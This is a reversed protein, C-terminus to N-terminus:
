ENLTVECGDFVTKYYENMGYGRCENSVMMKIDNATVSYGKQTKIYDAVIKKVDYESLSIIAKM